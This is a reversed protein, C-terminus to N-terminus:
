SGPARLDPRSLPQPMQKGLLTIGRARHMQQTPIRRLIILKSGVLPELGDYTRQRWAGPEGAAARANAAKPPLDYLLSHLALDARAASASSHQGTMCAPASGLQPAAAEM